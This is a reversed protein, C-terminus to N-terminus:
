SFPATTPTPSPSPTPSTTPTPTNTATVRLSIFTPTVDIKNNYCYLPDSSDIFLPNDHSSRGTPSFDLTNTIYGSRATYNFSLTDGRSCNFMYPLDIISLTKIEGPNDLNEYTILDIGVNKQITVTITESLKTKATTTSPQQSFYYAVGAVVVIGIVIFIAWTKATFQFKSLSMPSGGM